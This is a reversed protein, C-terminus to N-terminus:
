PNQGPPIDLPLAEVCFSITLYERIDFSHIKTPLLTALLISYNWDFPASALGFQNDDDYKPQESCM